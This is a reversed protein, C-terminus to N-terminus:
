FRVKWHGRARREESPGEGPKPARKQLASRLRPRTMATAIGVLAGTIGVAMALGRASGPTSMVERYVFDAGWPHGALAHARRVVPGNTAAIIFPVEFVHLTRNWGIPSGDRPHPAAPEPDLAYPNRLIRRVGPNAMAEALGFMSAVTGGSFGGSTEGFL